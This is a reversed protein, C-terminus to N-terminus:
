SGGLQRESRPRPVNAVEDCRAREAPLTVAPREWRYALLHSRPPLPVATAHSRIFAALEPNVKHPRGWDDAPGVILGTAFCAMLRQLSGQLAIVARGTRHDRGFEHRQDRPLEEMKSPSFRVDYRGFYYLTGLEETSVVVGATDLLPQLVPRARPWDPAPVEPPVAIEALLTATRLWFPNALMLWVLAGGVLLAAPWASLGVARRLEGTLGTAVGRLRPWLAALGIGWIAFLFPFAYAFYRLNKAAAFSTLLFGIAFVVLAFSASRPAAALAAVTVIGTLPWLTPYLLSLWTHYFWFQDQVNRNFLATTRYRDVLEALLGTAAAVGILTAAAGLAVGVATLRQARSRRPNGLWRGGIVAALWGGLGVTGILTTPQLYIALLLAAAAGTATAVRVRVELPDIVARYAITCALTFALVQPGYFRAFQAIGVAFPSVAFLVAGIWAAASGARRRLWCFLVVDTLVTCALAPVRAAWLSDGLLAYAGAVMWSFLLVRDYRGEAITPEGTELLGRAAFVHHLEDPNPLRDLGITYLLAAGLGLSLPGLWPRAVDRERAGLAVTSIAM